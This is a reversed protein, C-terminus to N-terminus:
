AATNVLEAWLFENTTILAAKIEKYQSPLGNLLIIIQLEEEIHVNM